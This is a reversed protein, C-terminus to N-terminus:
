TRLSDQSYYYECMDFISRWILVLRRLHTRVESLFAVFPMPNCAVEDSFSIVLSTLRRAINNNSLISFICNINNEAWTDLEDIHLTSLDAQPGSLAGIPVEFDSAYDVLSLTGIKSFLGLTWSLADESTSARSSPFCVTMKELTKSPQYVQDTTDKSCADLDLDMSM